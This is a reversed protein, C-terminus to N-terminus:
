VIVLLVEDWNFLTTVLIDAIPGRKPMVVEVSADVYPSHILWLCYM